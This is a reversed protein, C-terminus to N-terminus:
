IGHYKLRTYGMGTTVTSKPEYRVGDITLIGTVTNISTSCYRGPLWSEQDFVCGILHDKYFSVEPTVKKSAEGFHFEVYPRRQLIALVEDRRDYSVCTPFSYGIDELIERFESRNKKAFDVAGTMDDPFIYDKLKGKYHLTAVQRIIYQPDM